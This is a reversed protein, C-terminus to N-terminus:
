SQDGPVRVPAAMAALRRFLDEADLPMQEQHELPIREATIYAAIAMNLSRVKVAYYTLMWPDQVIRGAHANYMSTLIRRISYLEDLVPHGLPEMSM